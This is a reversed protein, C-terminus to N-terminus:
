GLESVADRPSLGRGSPVQALTELDGSILIARPEVALLAFLHADGPDRPPDLAGPPERLIGHFALTELVADVEAETLGHRRCIKPRLLVRRYEALLDVSLLFTLAGALMADLVRAPPSAGDRTLLGAVVVNTDVIALVTM